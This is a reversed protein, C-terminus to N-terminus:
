CRGTALEPEDRELRAVTYDAANGHSLRSVNDATKKGRGPGAKGGLVGIERKGLTVADVWPVPV